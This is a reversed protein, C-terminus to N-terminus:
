KRRSNRHRRKTKKHKMTRRRRMGGKRMTKRKKVTKKMRRHRRKGGATPCSYHSGDGFNAPKGQTPCIIEDNVFQKLGEIDNAAQLAKFQVQKEPSLNEM